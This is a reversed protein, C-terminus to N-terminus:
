ETPPTLYCTRKVIEGSELEKDLYIEQDQKFKSYDAKFINHNEISITSNGLEINWGYGIGSGEYSFIIEDEPKLQYHQGEKMHIIYMEVGNFILIEPQDPDLTSVYDTLEAYEKISMVEVPEDVATSEEAKEPEEAEDTTIEEEVVEEQEKQADKTEVTEKPAEAVVVENETGTDTTTEQKGCGFLFLSTLALVAMLLVLYKRNRRKM